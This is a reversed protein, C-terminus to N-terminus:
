REGLSISQSRTDARSTEIKLLRKKWRVGRSFGGVGGKQPVIRHCPVIFPLRNLHLIRGVARAGRPRGAKAALFQYSEVRGWPIKRLETLVRRQFTGLGTWDVPYRRFDVKRGRLYSSLKRAAEELLSRVRRPIRREGSRVDRRAPGKAELSYLGKSTAKLYFHGSPVRFKVSYIKM